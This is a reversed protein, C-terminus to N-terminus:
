CLSAWSRFDQGFSVPSWSVSCGLRLSSCFVKCRGMAGLDGFVDLHPPTAHVSVEVVKRLVTCYATHLVTYYTPVYICTYMNLLM